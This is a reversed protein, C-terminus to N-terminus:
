NVFLELINENDIMRVVVVMKHPKGPTAKGEKSDCVIVGGRFPHGNNYNASYKATVPHLGM